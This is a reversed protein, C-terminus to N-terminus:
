FKCEDITRSLEAWRAALLKAYRIENLGYAALSYGDNVEILLTQGDKTIGFDLSYGAPQDQYDQLCDEIVQPDYHYHWDGTYPRVGEIQGYRVYVRWEAVFDVVESCIVTPNEYSSGLGILDKPTRIVKGTIRKGEVSKVFIPWTEPHHNITNIQSYWIQRGLYQRLSKPYNLESCDIKLFKLRQRVSRLGGVVLDAQTMHPLVETLQQFPVVEFGMQHFGSMAAYCNISLPINHSNSQIYVKM